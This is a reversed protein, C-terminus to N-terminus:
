VPKRRAPSQKRPTKVHCEQKAHLPAKKSSSLNTETSGQRGSVHFWWLAGKRPLHNELGVVVYDGVCPAGVAHGGVFM